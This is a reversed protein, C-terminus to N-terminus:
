FIGKSIPVELFVLLLVLLSSTRVYLVTCFVLSFVTLRFVSKLTAQGPLRSISIQHCHLLFKFFISYIYLGRLVEVFVLLVEVFVLLVEVFVLNFVTLSFVSIRTFFLTKPLNGPLFFNFFFVLFYQM